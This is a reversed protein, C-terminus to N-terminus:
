GTLPDLEAAIEAEAEPGPMTLPSRVVGPRYGARAMAAKLGGVGHVRTVLAALRTMRWQMERAKASEGAALAQMLGVCHEPIVNAAALIGGAAGLCLAPFFVEANGVFVAFEPPCLRVLESLQAINGSSDKIGAINPHEALGAVAEAPLNVGTAQPFNYVLIPIAAEGALARYHDALRAPTMQGTFYHPTICLAYDAGMKAAREVERVALRTSEAMIGAMIIKDPHAAEKAAGLVEEWEGPSLYAAEGNSGAVLYGALGTRNWREINAQLAALDLDGGPEFPTIM